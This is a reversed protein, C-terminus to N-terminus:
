EERVCRVAYANTMYSFNLADVTTSKSGSSYSGVSLCQAQEANKQPASSWYFATHDLTCYPANGGVWMSGTTSGRSGAMPYFAGVTDDANRKFYFGNDYTVYNVYDLRSSASTSANTGMKNSVFGTWAFKSAVRYGVPSPDYITKRDTWGKTEEATASKLYDPYGWTYADAINNDGWLYNNQTTLWNSQSTLNILEGPHQIGTVITSSETDYVPYSTEIDTEVGGEVYYALSNPIPDKRGWQYLTALYSTASHAGLTRDMMTFTAGNYNTVEEDSPLQDGVGWIHWSWLVDGTCDAGSYVAIVANGVNGNTKYHCRGDERLEVSAEDVFDKVDQWLLKASQPNIKSSAVHFGAGPIIGKDGNGIQTALFSHEGASTVMYCNATEEGEPEEPTTTEAVAVQNEGNNYVSADLPVVYYKGAEFDCLVKTTLQVTYHDTVLDCVLEEGAHKGPAVIAYATVTEALSPTQTFHLTLEGTAASGTALGADLDTLDYTYHGTMPTGTGLVVQKLREDTPVEYDNGEIVEKVETLNIDFRLLTVLQRMQCKYTGDGKAEIQASAKVDYQAVSNEDTYSQETPIDVPIATRDAVGEQWPYYAHQLTEGALTTGSFGTEDAAETNTSTFLANASSTGFVGIRDGVGWKMVLGGDALIGGIVSRTQREPAFGDQTGSIVTEHAAGGALSDAESCGALMGVCGPLCALWKLLSHKM